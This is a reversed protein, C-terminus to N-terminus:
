PVPCPPLNWGDGRCRFRRESRPEAQLHLVDVLRGDDGSREGWGGELMRSKWSVQAKSVKLLFRESPRLSLWAVSLKKAGLGM